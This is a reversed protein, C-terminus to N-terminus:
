ENDTWRPNELIYSDSGVGHSVEGNPSVIAKPALLKLRLVGTVIVSKDVIESDWEQIGELFVPTFDEIMIIAGFRANQAIGSINIHENLKTAFDQEKM